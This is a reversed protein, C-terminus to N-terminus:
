MSFTLICNAGNFAKCRKLVEIIQKGIVHTRSLKIIISWIKNTSYYFKM